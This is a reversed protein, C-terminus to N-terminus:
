CPGNQVVRWGAMRRANTASPGYRVTGAHASPGTNRTCFRPEDDSDGMGGGEVAEWEAAKAAASAQRIVDYGAQDALCGNSFTRREGGRMACVPRYEQHLRAAAAASTAVANAGASSTMDPGTPLAAMPSPAYAARQRQRLGPQLYRPRLDRDRGPGPSPGDVCHGRLRLPLPRWPSFCSSRGPRADSFVQRDRTIMRANEARDDTVHM